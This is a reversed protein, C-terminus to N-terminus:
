VCTLAEHPEPPLDVLIPDGSRVEGGAIVISMIGCKRILEGCPRRELVAEMLGPRCKDLQQCPERLGTVEIIASAGLHLRAGRPLSLIDLGRTTINEGMVGPGVDFGQARLADHLEAHILHVQCLNPASPTKKAVWRHKVTAGMHADGEVGLGALLRISLQVPKTFVHRPALSVSTVVSM